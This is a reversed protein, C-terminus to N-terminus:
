TRMKRKPTSKKPTQELDWIMDLLHKASGKEDNELADIRSQLVVEAICSRFSPVFTDSLAMIMEEKAILLMDALEEPRDLEVTEPLLNKELFPVEGIFWSHTM